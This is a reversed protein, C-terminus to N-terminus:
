NSEEAMERLLHVKIHTPLRSAQLIEPLLSAPLSGAFELARALSTKENRLLAIRVERRVSWKPHHCVLEVFKAPANQRMLVKIVAAETLRSNELATSVVRPEPDLLLEGSIRGSARRALSLKEGISITELRHILTEEAALKVDAPVVPALAVQMLDFTFLHRLMPMSVHRPTRPHKILALKVKRSKAIAGNKSVRELIEAPLDNRKLLQLALDESLAPDSASAELEAVSNERVVEAESREAMTEDSAM